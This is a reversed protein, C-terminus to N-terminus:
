SSLSKLMRVQSEGAYVKAKVDCKQYGLKQYFGIAHRNSERAQVGVRFIGANQAVLELWGVLKGAIGQGQFEPKVALLDLNAHSEGYSMVGFGLLDTQQKAVAVNTSEYSILHRIRVETYKSRLGHEVLVRSLAAIEKADAPTALSITYM